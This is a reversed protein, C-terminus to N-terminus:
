RPDKEDPEKTEGPERDPKGTTVMAGDALGNQNTVIVADGAMVGGAVEAHEGDVLGVMVVQRRAKDDSVVFVATEEGEHVVAASPVLVVNRHLEADIDVALPAGVPYNAAGKFALRVPVTASTEQVAAPRSVVTLETKERTAGNVVHASAGIRIRPVDALPIQAVMVLRGPDIVRLVADAATAEVLDGPNHTRKSVIGDFTARVVSRAAVADAAEAAARANALDADADAVARTAEELDKRAGVGRDVLDKQRAEAARATALKAEDRAIEARQKSVEAATSPIDFRVLLDGRRVADGEAKPMEAIRAGEPAVVILEAGPAPAVLGTAHIRGVIDGRTAEATTVPVVAESETDEPAEKSCAVMSLGVCIITVRFLQMM